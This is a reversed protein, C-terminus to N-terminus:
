QQLCAVFMQASIKEGLPLVMDMVQPTASRLLLLASCFKRFQAMVANVHAAVSGRNPEAFLEALVKEHREELLKMEQEAEARKGLRAADLVKLICDTVQSLASVVVVVHEGREAHERVVSAAQRIHQGEGVSTGGYKMVLLAM